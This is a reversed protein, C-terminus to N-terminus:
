IKLCRDLIEKCKSEDYELAVTNKYWESTSLDLDEYYTPEIDGFHEEIWLDEEHMALVAREFLAYDLEGADGSANHYAQTDGQTKVWSIAQELKNRRQLRIVRDAQEKIDTIVTAPVGQYRIIKVTWEPMASIITWRRQHENLVETLTPYEDLEISQMDADYSKLFHEAPIVPRNKYAEVFDYRELADLFWKSLLDYNIKGNHKLRPIILDEINFCEYLPNPLTSTLAHSGTRPAAVILTKM